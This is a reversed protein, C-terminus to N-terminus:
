WFQLKGRCEAPYLVTIDRDDQCARQRLMCENSYTRGDSGCVPAVTQECSSECQCVPERKTNLKCTQQGDCQIGDCPDLFLVYVKKRMNRKYTQTFLMCTFTLPIPEFMLEFKRKRELYMIVM